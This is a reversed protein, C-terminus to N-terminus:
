ACPGLFHNERRTKKSRLNWGGPPRELRRSREHTECCEEAGVDLLDKFLIRVLDALQEVLDMGLVEGIDDRIEVGVFGGLEERPERGLLRRGDELAEVLVLLALEYLLHRGLRDRLDGALHGGVIAGVQEAGQGASTPSCSKSTRSFTSGAAACSTRSISFHGSM